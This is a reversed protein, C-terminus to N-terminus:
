ELSPLPLYLYQFKEVVAWRIQRVVRPSRSVQSKHRRQEQYLHLCRKRPHNTTADMPLDTTDSVTNHDLSPNNCCHGSNKNQHLGPNSLISCLGHNTHAGTSSHVFEKGGAEGSSSYSAYHDVNPFVPFKPHGSSDAEVVVVSVPVLVAFAIAIDVSAQPGAVDASVVFAVEPEFIDRPEFVVEPEFVAEPEFVVERELIGQPEFAVEPEFISEPEFVVESEATLVVREPEAVGSVSALILSFRFSPSYFM